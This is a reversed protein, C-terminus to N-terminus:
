LYKKRKKNIKSAAMVKSKGKMRKNDRASIMEKLERQVGGPETLSNLPWDAARTQPFRQNTSKGSSPASQPGQWYSRLKDTYHPCRICCPTKRGIEEQKEIVRRM